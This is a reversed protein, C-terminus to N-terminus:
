GREGVIFLTGRSVALARGVNGPLHELGRPEDDDRVREAVFPVGAIEASSGVLFVQFVATSGGSGSGAKGGRLEDWRATRAERGVRPVFQFGYAPGSWPQAVRVWCSTYSPENVLRAQAPTRPM